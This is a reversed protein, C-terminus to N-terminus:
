LGAGAEEEATLDVGRAAPPPANLPDWPRYKARLAKTMEFVEADTLRNSEQDSM